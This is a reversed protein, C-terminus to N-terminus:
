VEATYMNSTKTQKEHIFTRDIGDLKRGNEMKRMVRRLPFTPENIWNTKCIKTVWIDRLGIDQQKM